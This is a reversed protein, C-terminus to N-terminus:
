STRAARIMRCRAQTGSVKFADPALSVIQANSSAIFERFATAKGDKRHFAGESVIAALVGARDLFQWAHFVHKVDEGREFPPNLLIADFAPEAIGADLEPFDRGIFHVDGLGEYKARLCRKRQLAEKFAPKSAATESRANIMQAGIAPDKAWYPVLGWRMLSARRTPETTDQRIVPVQQTPAINYRAEWEMEAYEAEFYRSFAEVRRSLRYRGCM